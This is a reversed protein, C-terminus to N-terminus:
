AKVVQGGEVAVPVEPLPGTSGAEGGNPGVLNAGDEIAFQSGHLSCTMRRKGVSTM